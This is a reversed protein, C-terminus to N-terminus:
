RAATTASRTVRTGDEYEYTYSYTAWAIGEENGSAGRDDLPELDSVADNRGLSRAYDDM